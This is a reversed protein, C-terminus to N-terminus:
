LCVVFRRTCPPGLYIFEYSIDNSQQTYFETTVLIYPDDEGYM